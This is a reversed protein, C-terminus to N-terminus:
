ASSPMRSRTRDRPSPSTYLLCAESSGSVLAALGAAVAARPSSGSRSEKLAQAQQHLWQQTAELDFQGEQIASAALSREYQAGHQKLLVKAHLTAVQLAIQQVRQMLWKIAAPVVQELPSDALKSLTESHWERTAQNHAPAELQLVQHVTCDLLLRLRTGDVPVGENATISEVPMQAHLEEILDPRNPTLEMLGNRLELLNARLMRHSGTRLEQTFTEDMVRVMMEKVQASVGTAEPLQLADM